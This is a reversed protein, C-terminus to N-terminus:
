EEEEEPESSYTGKRYPMYLAEYTYPVVSISMNEVPERHKYWHSTLLLAAMTLDDPWEGEMEVVEAYTRQIDKLLKREAAKGLLTLYTDEDTFDPEIRAQQKIDDLSLFQFNTNTPMVKHFKRDDVMGRVIHSPNVVEGEPMFFRSLVAGQCHEGAM